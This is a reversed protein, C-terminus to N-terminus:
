AALVELVQLEREGEATEQLSGNEVICTLPLVSVDVCVRQLQGPLM